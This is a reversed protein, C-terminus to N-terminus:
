SKGRTHSPKAATPCPQRTCKGSRWGVRKRLSGAAPRASPKKPHSMTVKTHAHMHRVHTRTLIHTHMRKGFFNGTLSAGCQDTGMALQEAFRSGDFNRAGLYAGGSILARLANAKGLRCAVLAPTAGWRWTGYGAHADAILNVDAGADIAARVANPNDQRIACELEADPVCAIASEM